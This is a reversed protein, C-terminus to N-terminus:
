WCKWQLSLLSVWLSFYILVNRCVLFSWSFRVKQNYTKFIIEQSSELLTTFKFYQMRELTYYKLIRLNEYITKKILAYIRLFYWNATQLLFKSTWKWTKAPQRTFCCPMNKCMKRKVCKGGGCINCTKQCNTRMWNIYRSDTCYRLWGSCNANKDSCSSGQSFFSFAGNTM